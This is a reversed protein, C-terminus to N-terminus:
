LLAMAASIAAVQAASLTTNYIAFAAISGSFFAHVVNQNNRAGLFMALPTEGGFAQLTINENIGNRYAANGAMALIGSTLGPSKTVDISGGNRYAVINGTANPVIQHSTSGVAISRQGFITGGGAGSVRAIMSWGSAPVVGTTLYQDIGNFTWGTAEDFSPAAGLAADYTGPNALNVYSAALSAAGKPQYV